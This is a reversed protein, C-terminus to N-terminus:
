INVLTTGGEREAYIAAHELLVRDSKLDLHPAKEAGDTTIVAGDTMVLVTVAGGSTIVEHMLANLRINTSQSPGPTRYHQFRRDLTDTEGIYADISGRRSLDFRYLGPRAPAPPFKLKGQADFMVRGIECWAFRVSLQVSM